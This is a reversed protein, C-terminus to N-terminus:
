TIWRRGHSILQHGIPRLTRQSMVEGGPTRLLGKGSAELVTAFRERDGPLRDYYHETLTRMRDYTAAYIDDVPFGVPPLGGTFYVERLSDPAVRDRGGHEPVM